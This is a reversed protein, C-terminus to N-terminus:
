IEPATPAFLISEGSPGTLPMRKVIRAAAQGLARDVAHNRNLQGTIYPQDVPLKETTVIVADSSVGIGVGLRSVIAAKQALELPSSEARKTVVYPISEEEVGLLIETLQHDGVSNHAYVEVAPLKTDVLHPVQVAVLIDEAM